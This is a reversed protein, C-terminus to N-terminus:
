IAPPVLQAALRHAESFTMVLRSIGYDLFEIQFVTHFKALRGFNLLFFKIKFVDRIL